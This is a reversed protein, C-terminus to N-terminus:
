SRDADAIADVSRYARMLQRNVTWYSWGLLAGIEAYSYGLAKLVLVLRKREPLVAAIERLTERALVQTDTRGPGPLRDIMAEGSGQELPATLPCQERDARALRWAEHIAVTVLYSFVTERRPQTRLLVAWAHACADDILEESGTVNLRVVRRLRAAHTRYLDAEDGRLPSCAPRRPHAPSSPSM